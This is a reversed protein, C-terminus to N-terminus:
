AKMIMHTTGEVEKGISSNKSRDSNDGQDQIRLGIPQQKHRIIPVDHNGNSYPSAHSIIEEARVRSGRLLRGAMSAPILTRPSATKYRTPHSPIEISSDYSSCSALSRVLM